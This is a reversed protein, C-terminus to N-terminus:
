QEIHGRNSRVFILMETLQSELEELLSGAYAQSQEHIRQSEMAANEMIQVAEDKAAQTIEHEDIMKAIEQEAERMIKEAEKRTESILNHNQELLWKARRLDDPLTKRANDLLILLEVRDVMCQESLPVKRANKLKDEIVTLYYETNKEIPMGPPISQEQRSPLTARRGHQARRDSRPDQQMVPGTAGQGATVPGTMFRGQQPNFRPLPGTARRGLGDVPGTAFRREERRPRRSDFGAQGQYNMNREM